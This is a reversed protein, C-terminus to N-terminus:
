SSTWAGVNKHKSIDRLHSARAQVWVNPERRRTKHIIVGEGWIYKNEDSEQVLGDRAKM